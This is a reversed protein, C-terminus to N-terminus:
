TERMFDWVRNYHWIQRLISQVVSQNNPTPAYGAHACLEFSPEPLNPQEIIEISVDPFDNKLLEASISHDDKACSVFFVPDKLKRLVYWRLNPYVQKFTRQQGSILVATKTYEPERFSM